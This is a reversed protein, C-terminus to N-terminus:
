RSKKSAEQLGEAWLKPRKRAWVIGPDTTEVGYRPVFGLWASGPAVPWGAGVPSCPLSHQPCYRLLEPAPISSYGQTVM